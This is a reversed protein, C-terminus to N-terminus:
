WALGECQVQEWFHCFMAVLTACSSQHITNRWSISSAHFAVRGLQICRTKSKITKTTIIEIRVNNWNKVFELIRYVNEVMIHLNNVHNTHKMHIEINLNKDYKFYM